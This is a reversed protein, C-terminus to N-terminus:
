AGRAEGGRLRAKRTRMRGAAAALVLVALLGAASRAAWNPTSYIVWLGDPAAASGRQSTNSTEVLGNTETIRGPVTIGVPLHLSYDVFGISTIRFAHSATEQCGGTALVAVILLAGKM